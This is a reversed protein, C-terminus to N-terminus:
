RPDSRAHSRHQGRLVAHELIAFTSVVLMTAGVLGALLGVGRAGPSRCHKWVVLGPVLYCYLSLGLSGCLGFLDCLNPLLAALVVVLASLLASYLHRAYKRLSPREPTYLALATLLAPHLILPPSCM